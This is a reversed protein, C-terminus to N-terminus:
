GIQYKGHKPVVKSIALLTKCHLNHNHQLQLKSRKLLSSEPTKADKFVVAEDRDLHLETGGSSRNALAFDFLFWLLLSGLELSILFPPGPPLIFVRVYRSEHNKRDKACM